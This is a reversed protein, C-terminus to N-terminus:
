KASRPASKAARPASKAAQPVGKAPEPASKEPEPPNAMAPLGTDIVKQALEKDIHPDILTKVAYRLNGYELECVKARTMPLYKKEVAGAFLKADYGYAICVLNYFRQEPQGHDSSFAALPLTVKPNGTLQKVFGTYAYAAGLILRRAREGGFQLIYYTAFQDAADEQRGFIPINYIEFLAHGLEHAAAFVFQGVMVERPTVGAQTPKKPMKDHIAKLYEYCIKVTPREGEHDFYTNPKGDCEVAKIYLDEPLRFPSFIAKTRELVHRNKVEEYTKKHAPKKPPVYEIQIRGPQEPAAPAAKEEQAAPAAQPAAPGEQVPVDAPHLTDGNAARATAATWAASALVVAVAAARSLSRRGAKSM